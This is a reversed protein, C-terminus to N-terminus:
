LGDSGKGREDREGREGRECAEGSDRSAKVLGLDMRSVQNESMNTHTSEM